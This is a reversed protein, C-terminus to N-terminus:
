GIKKQRARINTRCYYTKGEILVKSYPVILTEQKTTVELNREGLIADYYLATGVASPYYLQLMYAHLRPQDGMDKAIRIQRRESSGDYRHTVGEGTAEINFEVGEKWDKEDLADQFTAYGGRSKLEYGQKAKTEKWKFIQDTNLEIPADDNFPNTFQVYRTIWIQNDKVWHYSPAYNLGVWRLTKAIEKMMEYNIYKPDDDDKIEITCDSLQLGQLTFLFNAITGLRDVNETMSEPLYPIVRPNSLTLDFENIPILGFEVFLSFLNHVGTSTHVRDKFSNRLECDGEIINNEKSPVNFEVDFLSEAINGGKINALCGDEFEGQYIKQKLSKFRVSPTQFDNFPFGATLVIRDIDITEEAIKVPDNAVGSKTLLISVM